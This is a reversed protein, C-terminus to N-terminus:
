ATPISRKSASSAPVAAAGASAPTQLQQLAVAFYPLLGIARGILVIQFAFQQGPAFIREDDAPPRLVYPAPVNQLNEYLTGPQPAPEFVQPYPCQGRLLCGQCTTVGPQYCVLQKYSWGFAGRLTAAAFTSLEIPELATLTIEYLGIPLHVPLLRELLHPQALSLSLNLSLNLNLSLSLSLNLAM